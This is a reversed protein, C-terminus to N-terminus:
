LVCRHINLLHIYSSYNLSSDAIKESLLPNTIISFKPIYKGLIEVLTPDDILNGSCITKLDEPNVDCQRLCNLSYYAIDSISHHEFSNFLLVKTQCTLLLDFYQHHLDLFLHHKNSGINALSEKIFPYASNVIIITPYQKKIFAVFHDPLTEVLYSDIAKIEKHILVDNSHLPFCTQYFTHATENLFFEAPILIKEKFCLLLYTKNYRLNLLTEEEIIQKTKLIAAEVNELYYPQFFFALLRDNKSDHICFSLGDTACRISLIYQLSNEKIFDNDIYRVNQM